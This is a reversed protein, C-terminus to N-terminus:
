SSTFKLTVTGVQFMSDKDWLPYAPSFPTRTIALRGPDALSNTEQGDVAPVPGQGHWVREKQREQSVARCIYARSRQGSRRM